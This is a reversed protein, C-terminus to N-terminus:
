GNVPSLYNDTPPSLCNDSYLRQERFAEVHKAMQVNMRELSDVSQSFGL